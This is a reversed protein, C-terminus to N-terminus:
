VKHLTDSIPWWASSPNKLVMSIKLHKTSAFKRIQLMREAANAYAMKDTKCLDLYELLTMESQTSFKKVFSQKFTETLKM